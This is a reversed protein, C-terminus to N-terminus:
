LQGQRTLATQEGDAAQQYGEAQLTFLRAYEGRMAMLEGHTGQGIVRGGSLVVIRDAERLAGLRHSVLLSTRERRHHRLSTHVEHEAAADLGSSPEDLIMLDRDHRLLARALALRQWQGGSLVVGATRDKADDAGGGDRGDDAGGGDQDDDPFFTRSLLTDYGRRIFPMASVITRLRSSGVTESVGSSAAPCWTLGNM